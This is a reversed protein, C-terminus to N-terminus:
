HTVIETNSRMQVFRIGTSKEGSTKLYIKNEPVQFRVRDFLINRGDLINIKNDQSSISL